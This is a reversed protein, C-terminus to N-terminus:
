YPPSITPQIVKLMLPLIFTGLKDYICGKVIFPEYADGKFEKGHASCGHIYMAHMFLKIKLQDVQLQLEWLM